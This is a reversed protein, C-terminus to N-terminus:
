AESLRVLVSEVACAHQTTRSRLLESPNIVPASESVRKGWHPYQLSQLFSQLKGSNPDNLWASQLAAIASDVFSQALSRLNNQSSAAQIRPIPSAFADGTSMSKGRIVSNVSARMSDRRALGVGDDEIQIV